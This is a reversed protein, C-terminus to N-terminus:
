QTYFVGSTIITIIGGMIAAYVGLDKEISSVVGIIFPVFMYMVAAAVGTPGCEGENAYVSSSLFIVVIWMVFAIWAITASPDGSYITAVLLIYTLIFFVTASTMRACKEYLKRGDPRRANVVERIPTVVTVTP